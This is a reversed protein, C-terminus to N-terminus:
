NYYIRDDSESTSLLCSFCGHNRIGRHRRISTFNRAGNGFSDFHKIERSTGDMSLLLSTDDHHNIIARVMDDIAVAKNFDMDVDSRADHQM